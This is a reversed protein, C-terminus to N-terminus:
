DTGKFTAITVGTDGEGIEGLRYSEIIGMRRLHDSVAKRLVGTGKGHVIRVQTLHSIYADDLYKDLASIAEDATMGLLNIEPSVQMSKSAKISSLNRRTPVPEAVTPAEGIYEVDSANVQTRLIGLQVYMKGKKDPLTHVTGEAGMSIVRVMDGVMLDKPLKKPAKDVAKKPSKAAKNQTEGIEERLRSREQEMKRIDPNGASYKNFDRITKDAVEKARALIAAAEENARRIIDDRRADINENKKELKAKLNEIQEKYSSIKLQENEIASKSTELDSILDEFSEESETITKKANEIIDDSLGLKKSIAFANSRGPVGILLRYTPSLTEVDFECCANEVGETSLAYVKLQSYHTTAMTMVGDGSLKSLISIALAAGETPDTGACLEDFLVLSGRNSQSLIKVINTMHSSFTSLSQEISQEDGIDAFVDNFVPLTSNDKAPIFLGSQAMLSFLGVTKLSVTKGGTNPGTIILQNFGTGLEINIPVVKKPDLLPHRAGKIIIKRKKSFKPRSAKMGQALKARAFIFDLRTLLRVNTGLAGTHEATQASLAELIREIEEQEKIMLQSLENNIQVVAAPEVFVTSGSSSRDHVMGPVASMSDSKVPICYRGDRMTVVNDSLNDRVAPSALIENIKSRIRINIQGIERRISKLKSSADDSMEDESVICRDIDGRLTALPDIAEFSSSLSDAAEDDNESLGFSKARASVSLLSSIRIFEGMGLTGGIELRKLSAGINHVGSFSINGKKFLRRLADDTEQQMPNIRDYSRSPKLERCLRRGEECTALEALRDIIKNYELIRLSNENMLYLIDTFLKPFM